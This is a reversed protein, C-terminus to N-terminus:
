AQRTDRSKAEAVMSRYAYFSAKPTRKLTNRDIHVLGFRQAYGQAWEFNDLLSWVFYGMVQIGADRARFIQNIHSVLYDIRQVDRIEGEDLEPAPDDFAAGNETIYLPFDGYRSRLKELTDYLGHAYVEWGMTTHLANPVPISRVGLLGEPDARIMQRTYYNVGLFDVQGKVAALDGGSFGPWEEGWLDQMEEPYHGLFLPDLFLHNKYAEMSRVALADAPAKSAAYQPELNVVLGIRALSKEQRIASAAHAHALLLHHVVAPLAKSSRKGPAHEGTLYGCHAVVWPENITVWHSIRDGMRRVVAHAYEAFWHHVDKALWGGEDDLTAPLDWHYLTPWPEIGAALLRDVWRDYFDLGAQNVRGRGEPFIRSWAISFRYADVGLDCLLELDEAHRHYHDCARDGNDGGVISGPQATFRDWISEGAGDERPAGEIQYASTAVGWIFASSQNM